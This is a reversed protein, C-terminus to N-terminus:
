CDEQMLEATLRLLEQEEDRELTMARKDSESLSSEPRGNLLRYGYLSSSNSDEWIM